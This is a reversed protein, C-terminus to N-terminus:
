AIGQGATYVEIATGANETVFVFRDTGTGTLTPLSGGPAKFTATSMALSASSANTVKLTHSAVRGTAPFNSGVLTVTGTGTIALLGAPYRFDLTTTGSTATGYDKRAESYNRLDEQGFDNQIMSVLNTGNAYYNSRGGQTVVAGTGGLVIPTLTYSGSTNNYLTVPRKYATSLAVTINGTLAGTFELVRGKNEADSLTVNSSGAVSKSLSIFAFADALDLSGNLKTGWTNSSASVEPKTMGIATTTTDAM